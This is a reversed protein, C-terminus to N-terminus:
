LSFPYICFTIVQIFKHKIWKACKAKCYLTIHTFIWLVLNLFFLIFAVQMSIIGPTSEIMMSILILGDTFIMGFMRSMKQNPNFLLKKFGLLIILIPLPIAYVGNKLYFVLFNDMYEKFYMFDEPLEPFKKSIEQSIEPSEFFTVLGIFFFFSLFMTLFLLMGGQSIWKAVLLRDPGAKAKGEGRKTKRTICSKCFKIKSVQLVISFFLISILIRKLFTIKVDIMIFKYM